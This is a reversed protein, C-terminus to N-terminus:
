YLNWRFSSGNPSRMPKLPYIGGQQLAPFGGVKNLAARPDAETM